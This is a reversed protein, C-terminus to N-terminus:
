NDYCKFVIFKGDILVEVTDDDMFQYSFGTGFNSQGNVSPVESEDVSSTIEGDMVGCRGEVTSESETSIFLRDRVFVAKACDAAANEAEKGEYEPPDSPNKVFYWDGNVLLYCKDPSNKVYSFNGGDTTFTFCEGGEGDGPTSGESFNHRQCKLSSLWIEIEEMDHKKATYSVTNGSKTHEVLVSNASTPILYGFNIHEDEAKSCSTFLILAALVIIIAGPKKM